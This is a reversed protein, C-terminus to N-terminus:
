GQAGSSRFWVARHGERPGLREERGHDAGPEALGVSHDGGGGQGGPRLGVLGDEKSSPSSGEEPGRRGRLSAGDGAHGEFVWTHHGQGLRCGQGWQGRHM